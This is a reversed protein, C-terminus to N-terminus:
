FEYPVRLPHRRFVRTYGMPLTPAFGAEDVHCVDILRDRPGAGRPEEGSGGDGKELILLEAAKQEVADPNQKHKLSKGTRQYSLRARKLLRGVWGDVVASGM